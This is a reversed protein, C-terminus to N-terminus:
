PLTRPCQNDYEVIRGDSYECLRRRKRENNRGYYTEYRQRVLSVSSSPTTTTSNNSDRGAVRDWAERLSRNAALKREAVNGYLYCDVGRNRIEVLTDSNYVNADANDMYFYCLQSDSLASYDISVCGSVIIAFYVIALKKM